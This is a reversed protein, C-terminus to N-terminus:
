EPLPWAAELWYDASDATIKYVPTISALPANIYGAADDNKTTLVGRNHVAHATLVAYFAQVAFAQGTTGIVWGQKILEVITDDVDSGLVVKDGPNFGAEKLATSVGGAGLFSTCVIADVKDANTAIWASANRAAEETTMGQEIYPEVIKINPYNEFVSMMGAVRLRHVYQDSMTQIALSFDEGMIEIIWKAHDIGYQTDNTGISMIVPYPSAEPSMTLMTGRDVVLGGDAVYQNLLPEEGLKHNYCIIAVPKRAVASEFGALVAEIDDGMPGVIECKANVGRAQLFKEAAQHGYHLNIWGDIGWWGGVNLYLEEEGAVVETEAATTEEASETAETAAATTEEAAATTEVAAEKCGIGALVISVAFLVTLIIVISKKM